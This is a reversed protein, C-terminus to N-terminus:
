KAESEAKLQNIGDNVDNMIDSLIVEDIKDTFIPEEMTSVLYNLVEPEGIIRKIIHYGYTSKVVESIEGVSLAFSATEFEKVMEGPGFTYGLSTLGPDENYEEILKDFDEGAKARELVSKIANEPNEHKTTSNMILIHKVCAREKETYKSLDVDKPIHKTYNGVVEELVKSRLLEKKYSDKFANETTLGMIKLQTLFNAKGNREIYDSVMSDISDLEEASLKINLKDAYELLLYTEKITKVTAEKVEDAVATWDVASYDGTFDPNQHAKKMAESVITYKYFDVSVDIGGVTMVADDGGSINTEAGKCASLAAMLAISIILAIIKRM